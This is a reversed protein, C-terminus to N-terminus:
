KLIKGAGVAAGTLALLLGGIVLWKRHTFAWSDFVGGLNVTPPQWFAGTPQVTTQTWGEPFQVHPNIKPNVAPDSSFQWAPILGLGERALLM